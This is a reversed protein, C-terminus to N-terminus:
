RDAPAARPKLVADVARSASHPAVDRSASRPAVDLSAAVDRSASRRDPPLTQRAKCRKGRSQPSGEHSGSWARAPRGYPRSAARAARRRRARPVHCHVPRAGALVGLRSAAVAGTPRCLRAIRLLRDGGLRGRRHLAAGTDPERLLVDHDGRRRDIRRRADAVRCGGEGPGGARKHGRSIRALIGRPVGRRLDHEDISRVSPGRRFARASLTWWSM